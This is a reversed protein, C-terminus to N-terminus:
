PIALQTQVADGTRVRTWYDRAKHKEEPTAARTLRVQRHTTPCHTEGCETLLGIQTLETIRPRVSNPDTHGLHLMMQRDTFKPLREAAALILRSRLGLAGTNELARLAQTSHHHTNM